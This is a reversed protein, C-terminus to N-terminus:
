TWSEYVLLTRHHEGKQLWMPDTWPLISSKSLQGFFAAVWNDEEDLGLWIPRAGKSGIGIGPELLQGPLLRAQHATQTSGPNSSYEGLTSSKHTFLQKRADNVDISDSTQDYMLVVFQELLSISEEWVESAMGELENFADTVEPFAKWTKWVTKKGRGVFASVTNCRTFANFLPLDMTVVM